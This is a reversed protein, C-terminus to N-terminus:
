GVQVRTSTPKPTGYAMLTHLGMSGWSIYVSIIAPSEWKAYLTIHGTGDVILRNGEYYTTGSGDAM